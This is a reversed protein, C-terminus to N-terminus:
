YGRAAQAMGSMALQKVQREAIVSGGINQVVTNYTNGGMGMGRKNNWDNQSPLKRPLTIRIV